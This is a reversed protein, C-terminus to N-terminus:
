SPFCESEDKGESTPESVDVIFLEEEDSNEEKEDRVPADDDDNSPPLVPFLRPEVIFSEHDWCDEEDCCLFFFRFRARKRLFFFDDQPKDDEVVVEEDFSSPFFVWLPPSGKEKPGRTAGALVLLRGVVVVGVTCVGGGSPRRVRLLV